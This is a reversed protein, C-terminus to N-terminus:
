MVVFFHIIVRGVGVGHTGLFGFDHLGESGVTLLKSTNYDYPLYLTAGGETLGSPYINYPYCDNYGYYDIPSSTYTQIDSPYASVTDYPVVVNGLSGTGYGGVKSIDFAM